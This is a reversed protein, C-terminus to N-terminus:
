LPSFTLVKYIPPPVGEIRSISSNVKKNLIKFIKSKDENSSNVISHLTSLKFKSFNVNKLSLFTLLILM